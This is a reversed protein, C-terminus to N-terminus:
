RRAYGGLQGAAKAHRLARLVTGFLRRYAGSYASGLVILSETEYKVTVSHRRIRQPVRTRPDRQETMNAPDTRGDITLSRKLM